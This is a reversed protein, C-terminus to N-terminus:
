DAAKFPAASLAIESDEPFQAIANLRWTAQVDEIAVMWRGPPLPEFQARWTNGDRELLLARDLGARTPHAFVVHLRAPLPAGDRATLSITVESASLRMTGALDLAVAQESRALQKNIGLGQKYYDDAVLGDSTSIALWLTIGGAIVTVALMGIFVWPWPHRYWPESTTPARPHM